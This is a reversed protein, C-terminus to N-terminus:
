HCSVSITQATKWDFILFENEAWDEEKLLVALLDGRIEMEMTVRETGDVDRVFITPERASPHEGGGSSFCLLDVELAYYGSPPTPINGHRCSKIPLV